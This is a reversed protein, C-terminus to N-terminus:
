RSAHRSSAVFSTPPRRVHLMRGPLWPRPAHRQEFCEPLSNWIRRISEKERDMLLAKPTLTDADPSSATDLYDFPSEGVEPDVVQRTKATATPDIERAHTLPLKVDTTMKEFYDAYGYAGRAYM